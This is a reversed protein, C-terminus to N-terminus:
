LFDPDSAIPLRTLPWPHIMKAVVRRDVVKPFEVMIARWM